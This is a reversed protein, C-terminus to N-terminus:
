KRKQTFTWYIFSVVIIIFWDDIVCGFIVVLLRRGAEGLAESGLSRFRVSDGADFAELGNRSGDSGAGRQRSTGKRGALSSWPSRLPASRRLAGQSVKLLSNRSPLPASAMFRAPKPPTQSAASTAKKTSKQVKTVRDTQRPPHSTKAKM